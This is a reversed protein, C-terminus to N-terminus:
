SALAPTGSPIYGSSGTGPLGGAANSCVSSSQKTRYPPLLIALRPLGFVIPEASATGPAWM